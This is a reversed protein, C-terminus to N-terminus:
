SIHGARDRRLDKHARSGASGSRMGGVTDLEAM